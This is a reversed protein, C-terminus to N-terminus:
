RTSWGRWLNLGTVWLALVVNWWPPAIHGFLARAFLTGIAFGILSSATTLVVYRLTHREPAIPPRLPATRYPLSLRGANLTAMVPAPDALRELETGSPLTKRLYDGVDLSEREAPTLPRTVGGPVRQWGDDDPSNSM